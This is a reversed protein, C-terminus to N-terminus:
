RQGWVLLNKKIQEKQVGYRTEARFKFKETSIFFDSSGQLSWFYGLIPSVQMPHISQSISYGTGETVLKIKELLTTRFDKFWNTLVTIEAWLKNNLWDKLKELLSHGRFNYFWLKSIPRYKTISVERKSIHKNINSM